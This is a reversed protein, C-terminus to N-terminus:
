NAAKQLALVIPSQDYPVPCCTDTVGNGAPDHLAPPGFVFDNAQGYRFEADNVLIQRSSDIPTELIRM